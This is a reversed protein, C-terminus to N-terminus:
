RTIPKGPNGEMKQLWAKKNALDQATGIVRPRTTDRVREAHASAPEAPAHAANRPARSFLAAETDDIAGLLIRVGDSFDVKGVFQSQALLDARLCKLDSADFPADFGAVDFGEARRAVVKGLAKNLMVSFDSPKTFYETAGTVLRKKLAEDIFGLVAEREYVSSAAHTPSPKPM